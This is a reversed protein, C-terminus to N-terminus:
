AWMDTPKETATLWNEKLKEYHKYALAALASHTNPGRASLMLYGFDHDSPKRPQAIVMPCQSREDFSITVKLGNELLHNIFDLEEFASVSSKVKEIEAKSLECSVFESQWQGSQPKVGSVKKAM